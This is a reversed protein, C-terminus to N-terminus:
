RGLQMGALPGNVAAVLPGGYQLANPRQHVSIGKSAPFISKKKLRGVPIYFFVSLNTYVVMCLPIYPVFVSHHNAVGVRDCSRKKM